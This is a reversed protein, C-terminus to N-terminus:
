SAGLADYSSYYNHLLTFFHPTILFKDLPHCYTQNIHSSSTVKSGFFGPDRQLNIIYHHHITPIWYIWIWGGLFGVELPGEVHMCISNAADRQVQQM